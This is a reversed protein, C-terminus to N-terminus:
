HGFRYTPNEEKLEESLQGVYNRIQKATYKRGRHFEANGQETEEEIEECLKFIEDRWYRM